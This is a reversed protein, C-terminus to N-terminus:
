PLKSLLACLLSIKKQCEPLRSSSSRSGGIPPELPRDKFKNLQLCASLAKLFVAEIWLCKRGAPDYIDIKYASTHYTPEFMLLTLTHWVDYDPVASIYQRGFGLGKGVEDAKWWLSFHRYQVLNVRPQVNIGQSFHGSSDIAEACAFTCRKHDSMILHLGRVLSGKAVEPQHISLALCKPLSPGM